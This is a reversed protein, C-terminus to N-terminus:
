SACVSMCFIQKVPWILLLCVLHFKRWVFGIVHLFIVEFVFKFIIYKTGCVSTCHPPTSGQM